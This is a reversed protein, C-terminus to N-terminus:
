RYDIAHNSPLVIPEPPLHKRLEANLASVYHREQQLFKIAETISAIFEQNANIQHLTDARSLPPQQTETNNGFRNVHSTFRSLQTSIIRSISQLYQIIKAYQM